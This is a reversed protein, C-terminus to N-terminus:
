TNFHIIIKSTCNIGDGTYGPNCSCTFSGETDTCQANEHCSNLDNSGCENIDAILCLVHLIQFDYFLLMKYAHYRVLAILNTQMWCTGQGVAAPLAVLLIPVPRNVDEMPLTVSM